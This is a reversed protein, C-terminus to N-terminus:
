ACKTLKVDRLSVLISLVKDCLWLNAISFGLSDSSCGAPWRFLLTSLTGTDSFLLLMAVESRPGPSVEPSLRKM